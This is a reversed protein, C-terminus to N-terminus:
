ADLQNNVLVSTFINHNHNIVYNYTSSNLTLNKRPQCPCKDSQYLTLTLWSNNKYIKPATPRKLGVLSLRSVSSFTRSYLFKIHRPRQQASLNYCEKTVLSNWKVFIFMELSLHEPTQYWITKFYNSCHKPLM